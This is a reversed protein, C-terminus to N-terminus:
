QSLDKLHTITEVNAAGKIMIYIYSFPPPLIIAVLSIDNALILYRLGKVIGNISQLQVCIQKLVVHLVNTIDQSLVNKEYDLGYEHGHTCRRTKGTNQWSTREVKQITRGGCICNPARTPTIENEAMIPSALMMLVILLVSLLRKM